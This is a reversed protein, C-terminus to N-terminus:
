SFINVSLSQLTENKQMQTFKTLEISRFHLSSLESSM